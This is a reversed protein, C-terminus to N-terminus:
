FDFPERNIARSRKIETSKQLMSYLMSGHLKIEGPRLHILGACLAPIIKRLFVLIAKFFSLNINTLLALKSRYFIDLARLRSLKRDVRDHYAIVKPCIGVKFDHFVTRNIYDNDEGYHEFIPDFLGVKKICKQTILWHAAMVFDTQVVDESANYAKPLNNKFHTDLKSGDGNYQMPSLIGYMQNAKSVKILRSLTDKQLYADQNLLYVFDAKQDLAYKIGINNARGFGLNEGQDIVYVCPYKEMIFHATGDTSNNDIVVVELSLDSNFVSTMCKDIWQMGNYTVIIVLVRM